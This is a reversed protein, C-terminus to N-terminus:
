RTQIIDNLVFYEEFVINDSQLIQSIGERGLAQGLSNQASQDFEFGFILFPQM